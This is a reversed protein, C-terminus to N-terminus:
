AKVEKCLQWNKNGDVDWQDLQAKPVKLRFRSGKAIAMGNPFQIQFSGCIMVVGPALWVGSDAYPIELVPVGFYTQIPVTASVLNYKMEIEIEVLQGDMPVPPYEPEPEKTRVEVSRLTRGEKIWKGIMNLASVAGDFDHNVIARMPPTEVGVRWFVKETSQVTLYDYSSESGYLIERSFITYVKGFRTDIKFMEWQDLENEFFEKLAPLIEKM